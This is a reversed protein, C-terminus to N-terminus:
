FIALQAYASNPGGGSFLGSILLISVLVSDGYAM